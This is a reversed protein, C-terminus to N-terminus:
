QHSCRTHESVASVPISASVIHTSQSKGELPVWLHAQVSVRSTCLKIKYGAGLTGCPSEPVAPIQTSLNLDWVHLAAFTERCFIRGDKLHRKAGPPPSFMAAPNSLLADSCLM